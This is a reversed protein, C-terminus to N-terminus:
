FLWGVTMLLAGWWLFQLRADLSVFSDGLREKSALWDSFQDSWLLAYGIAPIFASVQPLRSNAISRAISWRFWSLKQPDTRPEPASATM